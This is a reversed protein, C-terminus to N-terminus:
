VDKHHEGLKTRTVCVEISRDPSGKGDKRVMGARIGLATELRMLAKAGVM